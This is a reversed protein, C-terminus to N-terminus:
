PADAIRDQQRFQLVLRSHTRVGGLRRHCDLRAQDLDRGGLGRIDSSQEVLYCRIETGIGTLM